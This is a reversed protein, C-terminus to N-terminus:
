MRFHGLKVYIGVFLHPNQSSQFRGVILKMESIVESRDFRHHLKGIFEFIRLNEKKKCVHVTERLQVVGILQPLIADIYQFEICCASHIHFSEDDVIRCINWAMCLEISHKGADRM